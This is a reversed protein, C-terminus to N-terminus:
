EVQQRRAMVASFIDLLNAPQSEHQIASDPIAVWPQSSKTWIHADPHIDSTDELTGTQLKIFEPTASGVGYIINGCKSCSMRTNSDGADSTREWSSLQGTVTIASLPFITGMSFASGTRKQCDKCHCAYTMLPDGEVTYRIHQCQCSGTRSM